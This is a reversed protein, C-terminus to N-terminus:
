LMESRVRSMRMRFTISNSWTTLLDLGYDLKLQLEILDPSPEFSTTNFSSVHHLRSLQTFVARQQQETTVDAATIATTAEVTDTVTPSTAITVIAHDTAHDTAEDVRTSAADQPQDFLIEITLVKVRTCAWDPRKIVGSMNVLGAQFTEVM